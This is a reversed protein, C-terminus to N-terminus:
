FRFDFKFRADELEEISGYAIQKEPNGASQQPSGSAAEVLVTELEKRRDLMKIFRDDYGHMGAGRVLCWYLGIDRQYEAGRDWADVQAATFSRQILAGRIDRYASALADTVIKAWYDPLAGASVKLAGELITTLEASDIFV